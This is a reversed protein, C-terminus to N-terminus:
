NNRLTQQVKSANFLDLPQLCCVPYASAGNFKQIEALAGHGSPSRALKKLALTFSSQEPQM